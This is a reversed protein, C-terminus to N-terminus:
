AAQRDQHYATQPLDPQVVAVTVNDRGGNALAARVLEQTVRCLDSGAVTAEIVADDVMDTLGDTALLIRDGAFLQVVRVEPSCIPLAGVAQTILNRRPHRRAEQATIVGLRVMEGVVSHDLTLPFLVGERSLYVRSDGVHAIFAADGAVVAAVLTTSTGVQDRQCAMAYVLSNAEHCVEELARMLRHGTLRNPAATYDQGLRALRPANAAFVETTLQSADDGGAHGGVGDAVVYVGHEPSCWYADENQTRRLGVDTIASFQPM